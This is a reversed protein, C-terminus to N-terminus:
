VEIVEYSHIVHKEQVCKSVCIGSRKKRKAKQFYHLHLIIFRRFLGGQYSFQGTM